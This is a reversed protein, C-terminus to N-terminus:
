GNVKQHHMIAATIAAVKKQRTADGRSAQPTSTPVITREPFFKQIIYQQLNMALIMIILFALVTGMGLFMFKVGEWVLNVEEM